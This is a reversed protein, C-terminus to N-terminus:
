LRLAQGMFAPIDSAILSEPTQIKAALDGALGHWYVGLVAADEPPYQQALLGTLIGTLVDGTGGTAMGANGTSNFYTKGSPTAIFTRHGKLVIVLGLVQAREAALETREFDSNTKGFLREFEKPHPTLISRSPIKELFGRHTSIINLADADLVMPKGHSFLQQLMTATIAEQGLGPGAGIVDFRAFNEVASCVHKQADADCMAEPVATQMVQVGEQPVHVTLLGVGSRLCAKAALVAAGMKGYSGAVLLAHGFTGKHSFNRRPRYLKRVLQDDIWYHKPQQLGPFAAHLGIDLVHLEGIFAENEAMMFAPKPCQFSLTHQANIVVNGRSSKDVFLGSPVDIAIIENGSANLHQVLAATVGELPRNLGSGLLADIIVANKALTPFHDESQIFNIDVPMGHLRSLNQQFDDTGKHGFELIYVVAVCAKGALMRAIALGDGGNNGKGCFIAFPRNLYKHEELWHVCTAAAREMLDISSVPENHITFEDWARVQDASLVQM